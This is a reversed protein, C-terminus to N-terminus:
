PRTSSRSRAPRARTTPSTCSSRRRTTPPPPPSSARARRAGGPQGQRVGRRGRDLADPREAPRPAEGDHGRGGPEERRRLGEGEGGPQPLHREQPGPRAVDGEPVPHPRDGELERQRREPGLHAEPGGTDPGVGRRAGQRDERAAAPQARPAPRLLRRRDREAAAQGRLPGGGRRHPRRPRRRRHGDAALRPPDRRPPTTSASPSTAGPPPRWRDRPRGTAPLLDQGLLRGLGPHANSSGRTRRRRGRPRLAPPATPRPRPPRPPRAPRPPCSCSRAWRSTTPIPSRPTSGCCSPSRRATADPSPRSRTGPSWPTPRARTQEEPVVLAVGAALPDAEGAEPNAALLGAATVGFRRALGRVSEGAQTVYTWLRLAERAWDASAGATEQRVAEDSPRASSAPSARCRPGSRRPGPARSARRPPTPRSWAAHNRELWRALDGGLRSAAPADGGDLARSIAGMEDLAGSGLQFTQRSSEERIKKFMRAAIEAAMRTTAPRSPGACPTRTPSPPRSGSSSGRADGTPLFGPALGALRAAAGPYEGRRM